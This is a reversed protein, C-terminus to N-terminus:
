GPPFDFAGPPVVIKEGVEDRLKSIRNGQVSHTTPECGAQAEGINFYLIDYPVFVSDLRPASETM